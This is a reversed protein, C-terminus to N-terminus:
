CSEEKHGEPLNILANMIFTIRNCEANQGPVGQCGFNNKKLIKYM